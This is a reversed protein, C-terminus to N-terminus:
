EHEPMDKVATGTVKIKGGYPLAAAQYITRAPRYGPSFYSTFLENVVPVDQLDIFALDVFVVEESTFGAAKLVAFFNSFALKAEELISGPVYKGSVDVSLQGSVYCTNNVVVAHSIPANWQPLGEGNTIFQRSNM